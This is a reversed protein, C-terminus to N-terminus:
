RGKASKAEGQPDDEETPPTPRPYATRITELLEKDGYEKGLPGGDIWEVWATEMAAFEEEKFRRGGDFNRGILERWPEANDGQALWLLICYGQQYVPVLHVHEENDRRGRGGSGFSSSRSKAKTWLLDLGIWDDTRVSSPASRDDALYGELRPAIVGYPPKWVHMYRRNVAPPLYIDWGELFESMGENFTEPVMGNWDQRRANRNAFRTRGYFWRTMGHAVEHQLTRTGNALRRRGTGAYGMFLHCVKKGSDYWADQIDSKEVRSKERCDAEEAYVFVRMHRSQTATKGLIHRMTPYAQQMFFALHDAIDESCEESVSSTVNVALTDKGAKFTRKAEFWPTGKHKKREAVAWGAEPIVVREPVPAEEDGPWPEGLDLKARAAARPDPEAEAAAADKTQEQGNADKEVTARDKRPADAKSANVAEAEAEAGAARAPPLGSTGMLLLLPMLLRAGVEFARPGTILRLWGQHHRGHM